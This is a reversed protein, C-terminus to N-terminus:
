RLSSVAIAFSTTGAPELGLLTARRSESQSYLYMASRPQQRMAAWDWEYCYMYEHSTHGKPTAAHREKPALWVMVGRQVDDDASPFPRGTTLTIAHSRGGLVAATHTAHM